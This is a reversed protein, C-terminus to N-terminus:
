LNLFLCLSSIFLVDVAVLRTVWNKRWLVLLGGGGVGGLFIFLFNFFFAHKKKKKKVLLSM